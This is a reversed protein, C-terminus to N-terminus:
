LTFLCQGRFIQRLRKKHIYIFWKASNFNFIHNSQSIHQLLTNNLNGISIDRKHEKLRIHLNRSTKGIYKLKCNNCPICYVGTDSVIKCRPNSQVFGCVMKSPLSATKIDLKNLNNILINTSSNCPLIILTHSPSTKYSSSNANTLPHNKYHIKLAKSKAFHIFSKPYLLNLFSKRHPQIWWNFIEPFLHSSSQSLFM